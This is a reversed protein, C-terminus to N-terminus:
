GIVCLVLVYRSVHRDLCRGKRHVLDPRTPLQLAAYLLQDYRERPVAESIIRLHAPAIYDRRAKEDDPWLMLSTVIDLDLQHPASLCDDSLCVTKTMVRKPRANATSRGVQEDLATRKEKDYTYQSYVSLTVGARTTTRHNAVHGLVIPAVGLRAMGTLATRRLDHASWPAIGFRGLPRDDSTGRARLIARAVVVPSLSGEGCPFLETRCNEEDDAKDAM